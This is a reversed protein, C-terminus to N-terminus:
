ISADEHNNLNNMIRCSDEMWKRFKGDMELVRHGAMNSARM